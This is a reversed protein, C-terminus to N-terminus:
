IQVIIKKAMLSSNKYPCQNEYVKIATPDMTLLGIAFALTLCNNLSEVVGEAIRVIALAQRRM